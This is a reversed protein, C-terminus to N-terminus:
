EVSELGTRDIRVDVRCDLESNLLGQPWDERLKEWLEPQERWVLDGLYFVDSVYGKVTTEFAGLCEKAIQEELQTELRRLSEETFDAGPRMNKEMLTWRTYITATFRVQDGTIEPTIITKRQYLQVAARQYEQNDLTYVTNKITDRLFLLGKLDKEEVKGLFGSSSFVGMGKMQVSRLSEEEGGEEVLEIYPILISRHPQALGEMADILYVEESLGSEQANRVTNEISMAPLISQKIGVNLIDAAKGDTVLLSVDPRSDLSNVFYSFLGWLPQKAAEEGLVLIRNHGLYFDKGQTLASNEVAEAISAGKCTIIQANEKSPDVITQGGSGEPSFIQMTVVYQGGEWDVGVGQVIARNQLNVTRIMECGALLFPLLVAFLISAAWKRM